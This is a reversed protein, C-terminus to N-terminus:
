AARHDKGKTSAEILECVGRYLEATDNKSFYNFVFYDNDLTQIAIACDFTEFACLSYRGWIDNEWAGWAIHSEEGGHIAHGYVQRSFNDLYEVSMIADFRVSYAAGDPCTVTLAEESIQLAYQNDSSLLNLNSLGIVAALVIAAFIGYRHLSPYKVQSDQEKRM